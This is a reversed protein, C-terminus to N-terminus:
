YYLKLDIRIGLLKEYDSSETISGGVHIESNDKSMLLHCKDTGKQKGKIYIYIYIFNYIYVYLKITIIVKNLPPRESYVGAM